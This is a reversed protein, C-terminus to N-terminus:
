FAIKLLFLGWIYFKQLKGAGASGAGGRGLVIQTPLAQGMLWPNQDFAGPNSPPHYHKSSVSVYTSECLGFTSNYVKRLLVAEQQGGPIVSSDRWM